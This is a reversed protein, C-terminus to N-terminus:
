QNSATSAQAVSEEFEEPQVGREKVIKKSRATLMAAMKCQLPAPPKHSTHALKPRSCGTSRPHLPEVGVQLLAPLVLVALRM